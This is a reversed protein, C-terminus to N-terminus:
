EAPVPRETATFIFVEAETKLFEADKRLGKLDDSVRFAIKRNEIPIGKVGEVINSISKSSMKHDLLARSIQQGREAALEMAGSIQRSSLTQEDIALSVQRAADKMKETERFILSIGKAEEATAKAIQSIMDRVREMADTVLKAARAQEATSREIARSMEASKKSSELMTGLADGAERARRLGEEVSAIGGQMGEVASMVEEQVSQILSSIEQTSLAAREALEKIEEAVVSFGKGHEGAQAALIAANLSLLTTQDTVDDIVVLIKGIENSRGGLRRIVDATREVSSKIQQMGEITKEITTRGLTAADHTVRESQRASERANQEVEKVSSSIESISSLTEDAAAALEESNAAVERITASLEEISSSASDVGSSLGHISTSITGISSVMQDMSVSTEEVSRALGETNEAIEAAGANIERTSDTINGIAEIEIEAGRVISGAEKEMTEAVRSMRASLERSRAIFGGLSASSERLMRSVRGLEDDGKMEVGSSLDGGAIRAAAAEIARVPSIVMKRLVFWFLSSFVLSIGVLSLVMPTTQAIMKSMWGALFAVSVVLVVASATVRFELNKKSV